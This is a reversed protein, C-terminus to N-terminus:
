PTEGLDAEIPGEATAPPKWTWRIDRGFHALKRYVNTTVNEFIGASTEVCRTCSFVLEKKIVKWLGGWPTMQYKGAENPDPRWLVGQENAGEPDPIEILVTEDYKSSPMRYCPSVEAGDTGWLGGSTLKIPQVVYTPPTGGTRSVVYGPRWDEGGSGVPALEFANVDSVSRRALAKDGVAFTVAPDLSRAPNVALDATRASTREETGGVGPVTQIEVFSYVASDGSGDADTIEVCFWEGGGASDSPSPGMNAPTIPPGGGLPNRMDGRRAPGGLPNRQPNNWPNPMSESLLCSSQPIGAHDAFLVGAM